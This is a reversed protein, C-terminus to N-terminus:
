SAAVARVHWVGLLEADREEGVHSLLPSTRQASMWPDEVVPDIPRAEPDTPKDQPHLTARVRLSAGARRGVEAAGEHDASCAETDEVLRWGLDQRSRTRRESVSLDDLSRLSELDARVVDPAPRSTRAATSPLTAASRSVASVLGAATWGNMSNTGHGSSIPPATGNSVEVTESPSWRTRTPATSAAPLTASSGAQPKYKTFPPHRVPDAGRPLCPDASTETPRILQVLDDSEPTALHQVSAQRVRTSVRDSRRVDVIREVGRRRPSRM